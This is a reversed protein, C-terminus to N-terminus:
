IGCLALLLFTDSFLLYAGFEFGIKACNCIILRSNSICIDSAVYLFSIQLGMLSIRM